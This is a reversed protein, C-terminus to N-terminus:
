FVLLLCLCSSTLDVTFLVRVGGGGGLFFSMCIRTIAKAMCIWVFSFAFQMYDFLVRIEKIAVFNRFRFSFALM